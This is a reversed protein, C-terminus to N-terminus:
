LTPNIVGDACSSRPHISSLQASSLCLTLVAVANPGTGLVPGSSLLHSHNNSNNQEIVKIREEMKALDTGQEPDNM